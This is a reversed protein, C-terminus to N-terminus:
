VGKKVKIFAKSGDLNVDVRGNSLPIKKKWCSDGLRFIAVSCLCDEMCSRMCEEETFPRQLVYDSLPWDTNILVEFEYDEIKETCGLVFNPKCSGYEDEMPDILSYGKPCECFPRGSGDEKLNCISNYGCVGSGASVLSSTCINEPLYGKPYKYLSFVGDFNLTARLYFEMTSGSSGNPSSSSSSFLYSKENNGKVIYLEGTGDFVLERGSGSTGSEFYNENAYGSPLNVSRAVLNGDGELVMEFRGSSVRGGKKLVQTPLLTDKPHGFTDWLGRFNADQLVLNGTDNLKAFSVTGVVDNATWLVTGNPSTLVLGQNPLLTVKSGQPAPNQRNNAYWIITKQPIKTYWISLSFFPTTTTTTPLPHFGFSFDGSPSLLWTSFSNGAAVLSDGAALSSKPPSSSASSTSSLTLFFLFFLPLSPYPM